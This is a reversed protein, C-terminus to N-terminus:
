RPSPFPIMGRRTLGAPGRAEKTVLGFLRGGAEKNIKREKKKKRKKNEKEEMVKEFKPWISDFL